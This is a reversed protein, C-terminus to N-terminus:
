EDVEWSDEDYYQWFQRGTYLKNAVRPRSGCRQPGSELGEAEDKTQEGKVHAKNISARKNGDEMEGAPNATTNLSEAEWNAMLVSSVPSCQLFGKPVTDSIMAQILMKMLVDSDDADGNNISVKKVEYRGM